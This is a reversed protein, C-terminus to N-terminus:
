KLKWALECSFLSNPHGHLIWGWWGHTMVLCSLWNGTPILKFLLWLNLSCLWTRTQKLVFVHWRFLHHSQLSPGLSNSSTHTHTEGLGWGWCLRGTGSAACSLWSGTQPSCAPCGPSPICRPATCCPPPWPSRQSGALSPSFRQTLTEKWM